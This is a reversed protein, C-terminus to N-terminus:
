ARRNTMLRQNWEAARAEVRSLFAEPLQAVDTITGATVAAARENPSMKDMEGATIVRESSM